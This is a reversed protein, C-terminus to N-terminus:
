KNTKVRQEGFITQRVFEAVEEMLWKPTSTAGCIGINVKDSLNTINIMSANSIMQSNANVKLCEEFLVKGNSSKEGCVFLIMDHSRAFERINPIRNAVQRCITDHCELCNDKSQLKRLGEAMRNLGEVSKTTQSYLHINKS